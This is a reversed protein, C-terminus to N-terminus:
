LLLLVANGDLIIDGSVMEVDTNIMVYNNPVTVDNIIETNFVFAQANIAGSDQVLTGPSDKISSGTTDNWRAIADVTTPPIGTVNGSGSGGSAGGTGSSGIRPM